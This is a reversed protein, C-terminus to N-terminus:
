WRFGTIVTRPAILDFWIQATTGRKFQACLDDAVELTIVKRQACIDTVSVADFDFYAGVAHFAAKFFSEKASFAVVLSLEPDIERKQTLRAYEQATVALNFVAERKPADFFSEIDIGIGSYPTKRLAVAASFEDNHSISGIVGAPWLPERSRGTALVHDTVGIARLAERACLRGYFFEAQRKPVSRSIQEPLFIGTKEFLGPDFATIPALVVPVPNTDGLWINTFSDALGTKVGDFSAM